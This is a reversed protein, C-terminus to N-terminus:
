LSMQLVVGLLNDLYDISPVIGIHYGPGVLSRALTM